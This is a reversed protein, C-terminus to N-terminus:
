IEGSDSIPKKLCISNELVKKPGTFSATFYMSLLNHASMFRWHFINFDDLGIKLTHLGTVRLGVNNVFWNLSMDKKMISKM